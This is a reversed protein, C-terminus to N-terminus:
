RRRTFYTTRLWGWNIIVHVIVLTLLLIGGGEHVLEYTKDPISDRNLGTIVQSLILIAQLPITIALWRNTFSMM